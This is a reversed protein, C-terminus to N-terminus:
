KRAPNAKSFAADWRNASVQGSYSNGGGTSLHPNKVSRAEKAPASPAATGNLVTLAETRSLRTNFALNAALSPNTGAAKSGFISACRAQERLRAKAVPSSGKMESDKDEDEDKEDSEAKAKKSKKTDEEEDELSDDEASAKDEEDDMSEMREAYDDDSEDSAQKRDEDDEAKAKSTQDEKKDDNEVSAKGALGALHAFSMAKNLMNGKLKSM